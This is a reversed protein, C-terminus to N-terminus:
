DVKKRDVMNQVNMLTLSVIHKVSTELHVAESGDRKQQILRRFVPEFVAFVFPPADKLRNSCDPLQKM